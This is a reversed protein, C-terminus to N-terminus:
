SAAFTIRISLLVMVVVFAALAVLGAVKSGEEVERM